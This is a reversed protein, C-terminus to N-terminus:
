VRSLRALSKSVWSKEKDITNTTTIISVLDLTRVVSAM